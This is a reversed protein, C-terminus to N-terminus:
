EAIEEGAAEDDPSHDLSFEGLEVEVAAEPAAIATAEFVLDDATAGAPFPAVGPPPIEQGPSLEEIKAAIEQAQEDRGHKTLVQHAQILQEVAESVRERQEFQSGLAIRIEYDDPALDAFEILARLAEDIQGEGQMREAYALFNARADTLFGQSARIQGMKLYTTHRSPLNRIVKKCVAIANNPLEADVYLDVAREYREVAAQINGVRTCLDGARNFLSIDPHDDQDLRTIAQEYLDLAKGWQEKQEFRRAQEKLAEVSM